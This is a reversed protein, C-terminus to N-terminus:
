AGRRCQRSVHQVLGDSVLEALRSRSLLFANSRRTQVKGVGTASSAGMNRSGSSYAAKWYQKNRKLKLEHDRCSIHYRYGNSTTVHRSRVVQVSAAHQVVITSTCVVATSIYM